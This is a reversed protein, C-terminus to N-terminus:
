LLGQNPIYVRYDERQNIDHAIQDLHDSKGHIIKTTGNICNPYTIQCNYEPPLYTLHVRKEYLAQRFSPEDQTEINIAQAECFLRRWETFLTQTEKSLKYLIVGANMEPFCSPISQNAKKIRQLSTTVAMDFKELLKFLEPFAACVFTDTDLYLTHRYPTQLLCSLRIAKPSTDSPVSKIQNFLTTNSLRENTFITIPLQPMRQQLSSASVIAEHVYRKGIAVYIVGRQQKQPAM